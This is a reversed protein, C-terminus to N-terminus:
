GKIHPNFQSLACGNLSSPVWRMRSLGPFSHSTGLSGLVVVFSDLIAVEAGTDHVTEPRTGRLAMTGLWIERTAQERSLDEDSHTDCIRDALFM